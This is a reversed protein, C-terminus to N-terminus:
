SWWRAVAAGPSRLGSEEAQLWPVRQQVVLSRGSSLRFSHAVVVEAADSASYWWGDLV